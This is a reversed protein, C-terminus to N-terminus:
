ADNDNDEQNAKEEDNDLRSSLYQDVLAHQSTLEDDSISYSGPTNTQEDEIGDSVIQVGSKVNTQFNNISKSQAPEGPKDSETCDCNNVTRGHLSTHGYIYETMKVLATFSDELLLQYNDTLEIEDEKHSFALKKIVFIGYFFPKHNEGIKTNYLMGLDELFQCLSSLNCWSQWIRTHIYKFLQHCQLPTMSEAFIICFKLNVIAYDIIGLQFCLDIIEIAVTLLNRVTDEKAKPYFIREHISNFHTLYRQHISKAKELHELKAQAPLNDDLLSQSLYFKVLTTETYYLYDKAKDKTEESLKEAIRLGEPLLDAAEKYKKTDIYINALSIICTWVNILHQINGDKAGRAMRADMQLCEKFKKEAESIRNQREYNKAVGFCVMSKYTELMEIECQNKSLVENCQTYYHVSASYGKQYFYLQALCITAKVGTTQNPWREFVSHIHNMIIDVPQEDYGGMFCPYLSIIDLLYQQTEKGWSSKM